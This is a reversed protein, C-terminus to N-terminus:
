HPPTPHAYKHGAKRHLSDAFSALEAFRDFVSDNVGAWPIGDNGAAPDGNHHNEANQPSTHNENLWEGLSTRQPPSSDGFQNVM